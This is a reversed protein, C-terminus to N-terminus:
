KFRGTSSIYEDVEKNISIRASRDQNETVSRLLTIVDIHRQDLDTCLTLRMTMNERATEYMPCSMLYHEITEAAGCECGASESVGVTFLHDQLRCHGNQLQLLIKQNLCGRFEIYKGGVNSKLAYLQRDKESLDWRRQWKYEALKRAATKIDAQSVPQSADKEMTEAELAAAKALRDAQENGEITAHGPTWDIQVKVGADEVQSTLIKIEQVLMNHANCDWGLTLVGIATQSDSLVQVQRIPRKKLEELVAELTMKIAVLEGVLISSLKSVPQTLNLADGGPLYLCAGAGCPGPNGRCSGDTFAVVTQDPLSTLIKEITEKAMLEQAKSRTKSSGLNNWYTPRHRSPQMYELYTMEPELCKIDIEAIDEMERTLHVMNTLPTIVKSKDHISDQCKMATQKILSSSPKALIKTFERIAMEERRLDLPLINSQVELSEGSATGVAGLCIILGQRQIRELLKVHPSMHWVTSAYELHPVVLSQYLKIMSECSITESKGVKTLLGLARSAKKAAFQLHDQFTLREDLLVGM